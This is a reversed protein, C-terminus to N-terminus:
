SAVDGRARALSAEVEDCCDACVCGRGEVVLAEPRPVPLGCLRCTVIAISSDSAREATGIVARPAADHDGSMMEVCVNVCEDCIFASPGAILKRVEAQAKNCFSCCM